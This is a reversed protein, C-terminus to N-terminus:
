PSGDGDARRLIFEVPERGSKSRLVVRDANVDGIQYRVPSWNGSLFQGIVAALDDIKGNKTTPRIRESLENGSVWWRFRNRSYVVGFVGYGSEGTGDDSLTMRILRDSHAFVTSERVNWTGVLRREIQPRTSWWLGGGLALVAVAM